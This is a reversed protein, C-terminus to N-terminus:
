RRSTQKLGYNVTSPDRYLKLHNHSVSRIEELYNEKQM